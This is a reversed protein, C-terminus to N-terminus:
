QVGGASPAALAATAASPVTTPRGVPLKPRSRIAPVSLEALLKACCECYPGGSHASRVGLFGCCECYKLELSHIGM